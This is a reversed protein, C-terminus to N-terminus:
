QVATRQDFCRCSRPLCIRDLIQVQPHNGAPIVFRRSLLTKQRRFLDQHHSIRDRSGFFEFFPDPLDQSQPQEIKFVAIRKRIFFEVPQVLQQVFRTGQQQRSLGPVVPIQLEPVANAICQQNKIIRRNIGDVTETLPQKGLIGEFAPDKEIRLNPGIGILRHLFQQIIIDSTVTIRFGTRQKGCQPFGSDKQQRRRPFPAQGSLKHGTGIQPDEPSPIGIRHFQFPINFLNKGRQFLFIVGSQRSFQHKRFRSRGIRRKQFPLLGGPYRLRIFLDQSNQGCQMFMDFLMLIVHWAATKGFKARLQVPESGTIVRGHGHMGGLPDPLLEALHLFLLIKQGEVIQELINKM